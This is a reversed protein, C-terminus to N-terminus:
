TEVTQRHAAWTLGIAMRSWNELPGRRDAGFFIKLSRLYDIPLQRLENYMAVQDEAVRREDDSTFVKASQVAVKPRRAEREEQYAAMIHPIRPTWNTTTKLLRRLAAQLVVQDLPALADRYLDAQQATIEARPFLGKFLRRTENFDSM